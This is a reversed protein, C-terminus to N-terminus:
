PYPHQRIEPIIVDELYDILDSLEAPPNEGPNWSKCLAYCPPDENPDFDPAEIELYIYCTKHDFSSPTHISLSEEGHYEYPNLYYNRQTYIINLIHSFRDTSIEMEFSDHEDVDYYNSDYFQSGSITQNLRMDGALNLTNRNHIDLWYERIEPQGPHSIIAYSFLITSYEITSEIIGNLYSESIPEVTFLCSPSDDRLIQEDRIPIVGAKQEDIKENYSPNIRNSGDSNNSCSTIFILTIIAIIIRM